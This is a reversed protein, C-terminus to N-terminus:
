AVGLRELARTEAGPELPEAFRAWNSPPQHSFWTYQRKAYRRTAQQGAAIADEVSYQGRVYAALEPVGIARMVPLDPSMRRDLLTRVEEIAGQEVMAQFRTDCRSYLWARPPLLILAKLDVHDGIGGQRESQWDQLRRGTSLVVELARATRSTDNPAIREAASPDLKSLSAQNEALSAARVRSRVAEDIPPVPAIGDLLTRLYL